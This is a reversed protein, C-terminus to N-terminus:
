VFIGSGKIRVEVYLLGFAKTPESSAFSRESQAAPAAYGGCVCEKAGGDM